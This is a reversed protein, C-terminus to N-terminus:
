GIEVGGSETEKFGLTKGGFSSEYSKSAYVSKPPKEAILDLCTGSERQIYTKCEESTAVHRM